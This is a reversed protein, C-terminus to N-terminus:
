SIFLLVKASQLIAGSPFGTLSTPFTKSRFGKVSDRLTSDVVNLHNWFYQLTKNVKFTKNSYFIFSRMRFSQFCRQGPSEGWKM